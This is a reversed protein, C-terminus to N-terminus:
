KAPNLATWRQQVAVLGRRGIAVDVERSSPPDVTLKGIYDNRFLWRKQREAM